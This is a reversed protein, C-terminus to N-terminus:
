IDNDFDGVEFVKNDLYDKMVNEYEENSDFHEHIFDYDCLKSRKLGIWERYNSFEWDDPKSVLGATVPNYHIYLSSRILYKEDTIIKSKM